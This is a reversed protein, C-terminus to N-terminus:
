APHWSMFHCAQFLYLICAHTNCAEDEDGSAQARAKKELKQVAAEAAQLAERNEKNKPSTKESAHSEPGQMCACHMKM